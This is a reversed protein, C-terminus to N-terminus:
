AHDLNGAMERLKARLKKHEVLLAERDGKEEHLLAAVHSLRELTEFDAPNSSYDM